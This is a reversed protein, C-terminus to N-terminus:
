KGLLNKLLGKGEKFLGKLEKGDGELAKQLKQEVKKQLAESLFKTDLQVDPNSVTGGTVFPLVLQRNRRAVKALPIRKLVKKTVKESLALKGRMGLSQDFGVLGQSRVAFAKSDLLIQKFLLGKPEFTGQADFLSFITSQASDSLLGPMNLAEDIQRLINIGLLEGDKVSVHVPGSLQLAGSQPLSGSIKWELNGTGSVSVAPDAQLVKSISQVGFNQYNGSASFKPTSTTGDWEAKGALNGEFAQGSFAPIRIKKGLAEAEFALQKISFAQQVPLTVPLDQSSVKPATGTLYFKSPGGKGSLQITSSEGLLLDLNVPDIQPEPAPAGPKPFLTMLLHARVQKIAVPKTLGLDFPVDKSSASPVELDLDLKGQQLKGKAMLQVNAVQSVVDITQLDLNEQLPGFQGNVEFPLDYPKMRGSVRVNAMKGLQVSDTHIELQEVEYDPSGKTVRDDFQLKGGTLSLREVAFMSLVAGGSGEPTPAQTPEQKQPSGKGISATNLIGQSSRIVQITPEQVQVSEVHVKRNLLPAWQVVVQVTPVSLFPTTSFEPDDHITVGDLRMGIHPIVTLQVNEVEVKRNLADEVLPIYQGKYQNLDVIFPLILIVVLLLVLVIGLGLLFKKM